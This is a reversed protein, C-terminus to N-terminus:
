FQYNGALHSWLNVEWSDSPHIVVGQMGIGWQEHLGCVKEWARGYPLTRSQCMGTEYLLQKRSLKECQGKGSVKQARVSGWHASRGMCHLGSLVPGTGWKKQQSVLNNKRKLSGIEGCGIPLDRMSSSKQYHQAFCQIQKENWGMQIGRIESSRHADNFYKHQAKSSICRVNWSSM